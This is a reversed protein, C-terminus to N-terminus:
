GLLPRPPLRTSSCLQEIVFRPLRRTLKPLGRRRRVHSRHEAEHTHAYCRSGFRPRLLRGVPLTGEDSLALNHLLPPRTHVLRVASKGRHCQTRWCDHSATSRQPIGAFRLPLAAFWSMNIQMNSINLQSRPCVLLGGM